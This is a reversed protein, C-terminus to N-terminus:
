GTEDHKTSPRANTENSTAASHPDNKHWAQDLDLAAATLGGSM